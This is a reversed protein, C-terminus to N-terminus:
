IWNQNNIENLAEQENMVIGDIKVIDNTSIDKENLMVYGDNSKRRASIDIGLNIVASRYAKIYKM